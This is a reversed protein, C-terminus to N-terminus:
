LDIGYSASIALDKHAQVEEGKDECVRHVRIIDGIIKRRKDRHPVEDNVCCHGDPGLEVLTRRDKNGFNDGRHGNYRIEHRLHPKELREEVKEFSDTADFPGRSFPIEADAKVQPDDIESHERGNGDDFDVFM